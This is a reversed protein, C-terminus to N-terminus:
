ATVEDGFLADQAAPILPPAPMELGRARERPDTTRWAAIRCYDASRDVSVGHRGYLDAILATTGTGGFPDLVVAPRTPADPTPCACAYGAIHAVSAYRSGARGDAGHGEILADAARGQVRGPRDAIRDAHVVPRRGEGCAICIGPPSWGRIIRRPFEMPFAAYHDVGLHEPVALPQTAVEWVSAPLAGLPNVTDAMARRRQGPPTARRAGPRRAYDSAPTRIEDVASYYRPQLTFHFWQEHNRRVRDTVSEPIGNPKVWVVEARLILGLEDICALAYRWPLGMLSKCPVGYTHPDGGDPMRPVGREGSLSRGKGSGNNYGSYKDGLNVWLSGCPKLVRIWERTCEVLTAIYGRPDPENGIQGILPAANDHYDRLGYYPPSTVILDVSEYPLPVARADGRIITATM